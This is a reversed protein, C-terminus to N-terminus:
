ANATQKRDTSHDTRRRLGYLKAIQRVRERSIGRRDGIEQYTWRPRGFDDTERIEAAIAERQTRFLDQLSTTM